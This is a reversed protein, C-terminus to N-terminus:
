IEEQMKVENEEKIPLNNSNTIIWSAIMDIKECLRLQKKQWDQELENFLDIKQKAESVMVNANAEILRLSTVERQKEALESKLQQMVKEISLKTEEASRVKELAEALESSSQQQAQSTSEQQQLQVRVLKLEDEHQKQTTEKDRELSSVKEKMEAGDHLTKQLQEELAQKEKSLM